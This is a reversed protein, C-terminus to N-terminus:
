FAFHFKVKLHSKNSYDRLSPNIIPFTYEFPNCFDVYHIQLNICICRLLYYFVFKRIYWVLVYPFWNLRVFSWKRCGLMFLVNLRKDRSATTDLEDMMESLTHLQAGACEICGGCLSLSLSRHRQQLLRLHVCLLVM